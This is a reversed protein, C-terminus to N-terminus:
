LASGGLARPPHASPAQARGRKLRSHRPAPRSTPRAPHLVLALTIRVPCQGKIRVALMSRFYDRSASSKWALGVRQVRLTGGLVVITDQRPADDAHQRHNTHYPM